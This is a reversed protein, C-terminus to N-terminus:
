SIPKPCTSSMAAFQDGHGIKEEFEEGFFDGRAHLPAGRLVQFLEDRIRQDLAAEEILARLGKRRRPAQRKVDRAQRDAALVHALLALAGADARRLGGHLAEQLACAEGGEILGRDLAIRLLALEVHREDLAGAAGRRVHQGLDDGGDDAVEGPRFGHAPARGRPAPESRQTRGSWVM